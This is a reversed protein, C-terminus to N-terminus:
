GTSAGVVSRTDIGVMRYLKAVSDERGGPRATSDWLKRFHAVLLDLRVVDFVGRDLCVVAPHHVGEGLRAQWIDALLDLCDATWALQSTLQTGDGGCAAAPGLQAERIQQTAARVREFRATACACRAAVAVLPGASRMLARPPYPWGVITELAFRVLHNDHLPEPLALILWLLSMNPLRPLLQYVNGLRYAARALASNPSFRLLVCWLAVEDEDPPEDIAAAACDGGGAWAGVAGAALGVLSACPQQHHGYDGWDAVLFGAAGHALGHAAAERANLLANRTRGAISGWSSTGCAVFVEHGRSGLLALRKRWPHGQEYGWEVLTIDRPLKALLAPSSVADAWMMPRPEMTVASSSSVSSACGAKVAAHAMHVHRVLQEAVSMQATSRGERRGLDFPEDLNINCRPPAAALNSKFHPLLQKLLDRVLVGSRPDTPCLSFPECQPSFPHAVGSPMEALERYQEHQLWRHMHGLTNQCPVLTVFLAAAFADLEEIEAGSYASSGRWVTEHGAYEFTHEVYLQFHNIKAASLQEVLAKLRDLRPVRDRSVDLLVGRTAFAPWDRIELAGDVPWTGPAQRLVQRLTQVGWLCAAPSNGRIDCGSGAESSLSLEYLEASEHLAGDRFSIRVLVTGEQPPPAAGSREAVELGDGRLANSVSRVLRARAGSEPQGKSDVQVLARRWGAHRASTEIGFGKCEKRWGAGCRVQRPTPVVVVVM